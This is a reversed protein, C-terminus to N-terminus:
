TDPTPGALFNWYDGSAVACAFGDRTLPPRGALWDGMLWITMRHRAFEAVIDATTAGYVGAASGHELLVWPRNDELVRSAGRLVGLEAGEVDIKIVAIPHDPPVIDDLRIVPVVVKRVEEGPCLDTRRKLGSFAPNTIVWQFEATGPAEGAAAAYVVVGPFAARLYDAMEAIAEVAIHRGQPSLRVFKGLVDGRHAGVDVGNGGEQLIRRLISLMQRTDRRDLQEVRSKPRLMDWGARLVTYLPTKKMWEKIRSV